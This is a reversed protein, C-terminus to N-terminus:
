IHMRQNIFQLSEVFICPAVILNLAYLKNYNFGRKNYLCCVTCINPFAIRVSYRLTNQSVFHVNNESLYSMLEVKSQPLQGQLIFQYM